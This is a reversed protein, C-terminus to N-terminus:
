EKVKAIIVRHKSDDEQASDPSDRPHIDRMKYYCLFISWIFDACAVAVPHVHVPVKKFILYMVFPFYLTNCLYATPGKEKLEEFVNEKKELISLVIFFACTGLSGAFLQDLVMKKLVVGNGTGPLRRALLGYWAVYFPALMCGGVLAINKTSQYDYEKVRSILKQQTCDGAAYISGIQLSKTVWPRLCAYGQRLFVSM